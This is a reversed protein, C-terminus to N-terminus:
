YHFSFNDVDGETGNMGDHNYSLLAPDNAEEVDPWV